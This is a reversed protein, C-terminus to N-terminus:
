ADFFQRGFQIQGNMSLTRQGFPLQTKAHDIYRIVNAEATLSARSKFLVVENM